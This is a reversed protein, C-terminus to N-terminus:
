MMARQLFQSAEETPLPQGLLYGQGYDCGVMRMREVQEVTELGEAVVELHLGRALNVIANVIAQSHHNQDIQIIFNRDIKIQDIPLQILYSLSSYGVGFDDLVIQIGYNRLQALVAAAEQSYEMLTNETLELKISQPPINYQELVQVLRAYLDPVMFQRASLNVHISLDNASLTQRWEALQQCVLEVVQWGIATGLGIEEAINLFAAPSLLGHVPHQWRVLAEFGILKGSHINVIPQYYVVFERLTVARRLDHELALRAQAAERMAPQFVVYRSKGAAKARYMAIDADRLVEAPDNYEASGFVIGMSASSHLLHGSVELPRDLQQLIREAVSIVQDVSAIDDLLIVFEDGGMRACTDIARLCRYLRTAVAVLYRDGVPHGFSDNIFKFRDLDLFIVAFHHDPHRQSRKIAQSLRDSLLLRNPLGTLADHLVGHQLRLEMLKRETVDRYNVIVGEVAPDDLWNSATAEIWRWGGGARLVRFETITSAGSQRVLDFFTHKVRERDAPHIFTFSSVPQSLFGEVQYGLLHRTSPSAYRVLGHRDVILVADSSREIMARFLRENRQLAQLAEQREIFLRRERLTREAIRPLELLTAPTKVVYDLAGAKLAAVATQEDGHGTMLVVPLPVDADTIILLEDSRGDPMYLDCIILDFSHTALLQRAEHLSSTATIQVASHEFARQILAVHDLNDEVLLIHPKM